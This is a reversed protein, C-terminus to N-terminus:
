ALVVIGQWDTTLSVLQQDIMTAVPCAYKAHNEVRWSETILWLCVGWFTKKRGEFVSQTSKRKHRSHRSLLKQRKGSNSCGM